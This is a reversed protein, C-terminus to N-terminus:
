EAEDEFGILALAQAKRGMLTLQHVLADDRGHTVWIEPAQVDEITKLLEPWDAHDSIILPLEAGRQRARARVRMWGSAFSTISNGFKTAWRDDTASPPCLILEGKLNKADVDSVPRMDGLKVGLREYLKCLEVLAGHLWITRDFGQQRLLSIVRQAKGLGYVGLLHNRDPNQAISALLRAAEKEAPEHCFVPLAFTAETIFVDCPVPEFPACTPDLSRKYDGSAVIRQGQWELVIQASGLIHGAPIFRVSVGNINHTEHYRTATYNHNPGLRLKMVEVTEPTALYAEHGSRAHDSHGHTILARSVPRAPDIYFGGPECFLGNPDPRLWNTV